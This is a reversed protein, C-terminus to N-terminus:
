YVFYIIEEVKWSLMNGGDEPKHVLKENENFTVGVDKLVAKYANIKKQNMTSIHTEEM